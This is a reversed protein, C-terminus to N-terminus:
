RMPLLPCLPAVPFERRVRLRRAKTPPPAADVRPSSQIQQNRYLATSAAALAQSRVLAAFAARIRSSVLVRHLMSM